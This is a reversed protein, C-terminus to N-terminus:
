LKYVEIYKDVSKRSMYKDHAKCALVESNGLMNSNFKKYLELLKECFDDVNLQAYIIDGSELQKFDKLGVVDTLLCPIGCSIAELVSISVGEFLSPMVYCDAMMYYPLPDAFGIFQVFKNLGNKNVYEVEEHIDTGSGVHMYSIKLMPEEEQMKKIAQLIYSHNKIKSCNGVSLIVFTDKSINNQEKQEHKLSDPVYKFKEENCWNDIITIPKNHFRNMENEYVSQGIAIYKIGLRRGLWRTGIRRYKLIGEFSFVNHVTRVIKKVGAVRADFAYYCDQSERHIHVVDPKLTRFFKFVSKHQILINEHYVHHLIYGNEELQKAYSGLEKQTVLIHLEYGKWMKSSTCLMTEAGSPMLSNLVHCLRLRSDGQSKM